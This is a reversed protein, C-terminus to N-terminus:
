DPDDFVIVRYKADKNGMLLADDLPIKSVDVKNLEIFREQSLNKREKIAVINGSILHKKSFDIYIPVKKGGAEIDVEWVGAVPGQIVGLVNVNQGLDNLLNAADEKSLNHCKACDEGKESFGYSYAAPLLLFTLVIFGLFKRM